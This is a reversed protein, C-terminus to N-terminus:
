RRRRRRAVRYPAPAAGQAPPPLEAALERHENEATEICAHLVRAEEFKFANTLADYQARLRALEGALATLQRRKVVADNASGPTNM